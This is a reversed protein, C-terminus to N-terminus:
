LPCEAETPCQEEGVKASPFPSHEWHSLIRLFRPDPFPSESAMSPAGLLSQKESATAVGM